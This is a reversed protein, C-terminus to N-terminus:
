RELDRQKIEQRRRLEPALELASTGAKCIANMLRWATEPWNLRPHRHFTFGILKRLQRAPHTGM